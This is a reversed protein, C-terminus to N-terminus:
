ARLSRGGDTEDHEEEEEGAMEDELALGRKKLEAQLEEDSIHGLANEDDNEARDDLGEPLMGEPGEDEGAMESADDEPFELDLEIGKDAKRSAPMPLSGLKKKSATKTDVAMIVKGRHNHVYGSQNRDNHNINNLTEHIGQGM